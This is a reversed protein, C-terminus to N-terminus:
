DVKLTHSPNYGLRGWTRIQMWYLDQYTSDIAPCLSPGLGCGGGPYTNYMGGVEAKKGFEGTQKSMWKKYEAHGDAYSVIVGDGHRVMPPDFWKERNTGSFNVAYSDPTVRGEDIFVIRMASKKISGTNNHWVSRNAGRSGLAVGGNEGYIGNMADVITYTILEDRNGAPCRYSHYERVYKWLAGTNMACKYGSETTASDGDGIWPIENIHGYTSVYTPTTPATAKCNELPSDPCTGPIQPAGNVIKGNNNDAYAMWALTLQKLNNMCVIRKGMEKAKNLAPLLIAM